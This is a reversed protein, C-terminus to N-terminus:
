KKAAADQEQSQAVQSRLNVLNKVTNYWFPAGLSLFGAMMLIGFIEGSEWKYWPDPVEFFALTSDSLKSRV